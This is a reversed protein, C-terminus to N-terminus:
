TGRGSKTGLDGAEVLDRYISEKLNNHWRTHPAIATTSGDPRVERDNPVLKIQDNTLVATVRVEKKGDAIFGLVEDENEATVTWGRAKLGHVIALRAQTRSVGAPIPLVNGEPLWSTPRKRTLLLRQTLPPKPPLVTNAMGARTLLQAVHETLLESYAALVRRQETAPFQDWSDRWEIAYIERAGPLTDAATFKQTRCDFVRLQFVGYAQIRKMGFFERRYLGFGKLPQNTGAIWDESVGTTLLVIRDVSKAQGLAVLRHALEKESPNSWLFRDSKELALGATRGDIVAIPQVLTQTIFHSAVDNADFGEPTSEWERNQFVTTGVNLGRVVPEFGTVVITRAPSSLVERPPTACGALLVLLAVAFGPLTKM